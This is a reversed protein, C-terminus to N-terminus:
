TGRSVENWTFGYVCVRRDGWPLRVPDDWAIHASSKLRNYDDEGLMLGVRPALKPVLALVEDPDVARSVIWDFSSQLDEARRAVVMVNTLDRTSEKLFVAKRQNSEVLTVQCNPKLVAIPVGPFGAGSGIDALTQFEGPIHQAFFLSELYHRKVTEPGSQVTTLNMKRNWRDLLEYHSYLKEIKEQSLESLLESFWAPVSVPM